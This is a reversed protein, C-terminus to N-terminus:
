KSPYLTIEGGKRYRGDPLYFRRDRNDEMLEIRKNGWAEVISKLELNGFATSYLKTGSHVKELVKLIKSEKM